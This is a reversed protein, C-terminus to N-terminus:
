VVKRLQKDVVDISGFRSMQECFQPLAASSHGYARQLQDLIERLQKREAEFQVSQMLNLYERLCNVGSM